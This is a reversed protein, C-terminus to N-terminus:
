SDQTCKKRGYKQKMATRTVILVQDYTEVVGKIQGNAFEIIANSSEAPIFKSVINVNDTNVLIREKTSICQLEIFM